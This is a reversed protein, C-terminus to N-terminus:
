KSFTHLNYKYEYSSEKDDCTEQVAYSPSTPPKNLYSRPFKRHMDISVCDDGLMDCLRECRSHAVDKLMLM